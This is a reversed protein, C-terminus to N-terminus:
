FIYEKTVKNIPIINYQKETLYKIIQPLAKLTSSRDYRSHLIIFMEKKLPTSKVASLILRSDSGAEWDRPDCNWDYIKMGMKHINEIYEKKLNPKSGGPARFVTCKTGTLKYIINNTREIEAKLNPWSKYISGTKHSYTHNGLTHGENHIRRVLAPYKEAWVGKIFFTAKVNYEKLVDLIEPTIKSDPGDDFTLYANKDYKKIQANGDSSTQNDTGAKQVTFSCSEIDWYCVGKISYKDALGAETNESVGIVLKSKPVYMIAKQLAKELYARDQLNNLSSNNQYSGSLDNVPKIIVYDSLKAL